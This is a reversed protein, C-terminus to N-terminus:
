SQRSSTSELTTGTPPTPNKAGRQRFNIPGSMSATLRTSPCTRPILKAITPFLDVTMLMQKSETGAPDQRALAHHV